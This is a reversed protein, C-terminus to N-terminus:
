AAKMYYLTLGAPMPEDAEAKDGFVSNLWAAMDAPFMGNKSHECTMRLVTSPLHNVSAAWQGLSGEKGTTVYTTVQMVPHPTVLNALRGWVAADGNLVNRDVGNIAGYQHVSWVSWPRIDGPSGAPMGYSAIWLPRQYLGTLCGSWIMSRNSYAWCNKGLETDVAACFRQAWSAVASPGLGDTAELDLCVVDTAGFGGQRVCATFHAAQAAADLGPHGFHYVGRLLGLQKMAAWNRSFQADTGTSGETAKCFAFQIQGKFPNWDLQGQWNSVDIGNLM